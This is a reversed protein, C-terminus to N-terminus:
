GGVCGFIGVDRRYESSTWNAGGDSTRFLNSGNVAWGINENFFSMDTFFSIGNLKEKVWTNGGDTTKLTIEFGLAWGVLPTVMEISSLNVFTGSPLTRWSIGGDTSKLIAGLTGVAFGTEPTPFDVDTLTGQALAGTQPAWAGAADPLATYTGVSQASFKGLTQLDGSAQSAVLNGDRLWRLDMGPWLNSATLVPRNCPASSTTDLRIKPIVAVGLNTAGRCGLDTGCFATYTTSTYPTVTITAGTSGDSWSLADPCGSATLTISEGECLANHTSATVVAAPPSQQLALSASCSATPAAYHMLAGKGNTIWGNAADTLLIDYFYTGSPLRERLWTIGGDSTRYNYFGGGPHLYPSLAIGHNSDAFSISKFGVATANIVNASWTLGGDTTKRSNSGTLWGESSNKFYIKEVTYNASETGANVATWTVGGDTTKAVKGDAGSVWGVSANLFFLRGTNFGVPSANWSSGGDTTRYVNPNSTYGVIAWGVTSSVFQIKAVDSGPLNYVPNWSNGGDISKHLTTVSGMAGKTAAYGTNADIFDVDYVEKLATNTWVKGGNITKLLFSRGNVAWGINSNVFDMGPYINSAEGDLGIGEGRTIKWGYSSPTSYGTLLRGLKGAVWARSPNRMFIAQADIPPADTLNWSNGGNTTKYIGKWALLTGNNEDTFFIANFNTGSPFSSGLSTWNSGGDTTKYITNNLGVIWGKTSDVFFVDTPGNSGGLNVTNWTAGGDTTRKLNNGVAWGNNNDTFFVGRLGLTGSDSAQWSVGGNTTRLVSNSNADTIWGHDSDTFFIETLGYYAGGLYMQFWSLGADTTKLLQGGRGIIWGTTSNVFHVSTYDFQEFSPVKAWTEGSDTTRVIKGFDGVAVGVFDDAFYVDNFNDGDPLLNQWAWIPTTPIDARVTYTGPQTADYSSSNANPIPSGDKEWWFSSGVPLGNISLTAQDTFCTGVSSNLQLRPVVVPSVSGTTTTTGVTCTAYYTTNIVPSVTISATTEGTSWKLTGTCNAATLTAPTGSCITEPGNITFQSWAKPGCFLALCVLFFPILHKMTCIKLFFGYVVCAVPSGQQVCSSGM